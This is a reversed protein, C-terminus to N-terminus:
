GETDEFISMQGKLEGIDQAEEMWWCFVEEGSRWTTALGRDIRAEIMRDFTKIYREKIKPWREFEKYRNDGSMPCGVCGIRDFGEDYLECYPIKEARIFEWVDEGTWDIIPNIITKSTRYCMEVTRRTASNDENMVVGGSKPVTFIAKNAQAKKQARKGRITFLGQNAQRNNSEDWRVGTVSIRGKGHEEKLVKCCYRCKRTPPMCNKVILNWANMTPRDRVVDAYNRNIFRILEPPDLTTIHYHPDYKVVAMAALREIVISDKGGSFALFYGEEPEFAKLREISQEVKNVKGFLNYDILSM